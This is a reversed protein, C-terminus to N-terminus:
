SKSISLLVKNMRLLAVPYRKSFNAMENAPVAYINKLKYGNTLEMGPITSVGNVGGISELGEKFFLFVDPNSEVLAEPTLPKYGTYGTIANNGGALEIFMSSSTETGSVLLTGPGRSYIFMVNSAVKTISDLSKNIGLCIETAKESKNLSDGLAQIFVLGENFTTPKDFELVRVDMSRLVDINNQSFSNKFLIVINPKQSMISETTIGSSHGLQNKLKVAEPYSSTIDVAVISDGLGLDYINETISGGLSVIKLSKKKTSDNENSNKCSVSVLLIVVVLIKYLQKM